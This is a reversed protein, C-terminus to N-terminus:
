QVQPAVLFFEPGRPEFVGEVLDLAGLSSFKPLEEPENLFFAIARM